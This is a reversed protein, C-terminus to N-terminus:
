AIAIWYRRKQVALSPDSTISELMGGCREIVARSGINDVDCTVLAREIKHARCIPLALQLMRSAYGRRRQSRRVGYGIHGGIKALFENLQYRISVRGVIVGDVVGVFFGGSVYGSPLEEGRSWAEQRHVYREFPEEDVYGLAFDFPPSEARFEALAELFSREDDARLPRLELKGISM